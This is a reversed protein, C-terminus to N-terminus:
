VESRCFGAKPNLRLKSYVKNNIKRYHIIGVVYIFFISMYISIFVKLLLYFIIM